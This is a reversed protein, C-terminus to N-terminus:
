GELYPLYERITLWGKAETETARKDIAGVFEHMMVASDYNEVNDYLIDGVLGYTVALQELSFVFGQTETVGREGFFTFDYFTVLDTAIKDLESNTLEDARRTKNTTPMTREM